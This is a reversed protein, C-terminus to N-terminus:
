RGSRDCREDHAARRDATLGEEARAPADSRGAGRFRRAQRERTYLSGRNFGRAGSASPSDQVYLLWEDVRFPRHFWMAHDLSAMQVGFELVLRHTRFFRPTSCRCTRPMPSCANSCRRHRGAGAGTARIWVNDLPARPERKVWNDSSRGPADRDAAPPQDM